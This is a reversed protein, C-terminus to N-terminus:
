ERLTSSEVKKKLKGSREELAEGIRNKRKDNRPILAMNDTKIFFVSTEQYTSRITTLLMVYCLM